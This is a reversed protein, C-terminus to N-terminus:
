VWQFGLDHSEPYKGPRQKNQAESIQPCASFEFEESCENRAVIKQSRIVTKKGKKLTFTNKINLKLNTLM